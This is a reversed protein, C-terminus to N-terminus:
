LIFEGPTATGKTSNIAATDAATAIKIGSIESKYGNVIESDIEDEGLTFFIQKPDIVIEKSIKDSKFPACIPALSVALHGSMSPGIRFQRPNAVVLQHAENTSVDGLIMDGAYLRILSIKGNM